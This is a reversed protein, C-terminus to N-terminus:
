ADSNWPAGVINKLWKRLNLERKFPQFYKLFWLTYIILFLYIYMLLQLSKKTRHLVLNIVFHTTCLVVCIKFIKVSIKKKKSRFM